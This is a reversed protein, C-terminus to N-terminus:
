FNSRTPLSPNLIRHTTESGAVPLGNPNLLGLQVLVTAQDWYIHEHSIKGNVIGVIVVFGVEVKRHTPAIEPLMWEIPTTHTFSIVLEEVIQTEGVTLSVRQMQMDPPFFKGVLHNAYFTKVGQYGYGGMNNAVNHLHPNSTMTSMTTELDGELEALIHKALLDIMAQQSESYQNSM